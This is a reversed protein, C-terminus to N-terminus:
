ISGRLNELEEDIIKKVNELSDSNIVAGAAEEHGGGGLSKAIKSVDIKNLPNTRFSIYWQNVRTDQPMWIRNYEVDKSYKLEHIGPYVQENILDYKRFDKYNVYSFLYKHEQDYSVRSHSIGLLKIKNLAIASLASKVIQTDAGLIVLKKAIEYTHPHPGFSFWGTDSALGMFLVNAIEASIDVSQKEFLMFVIEATSAAEMDIYNYDGFYTNTKHHDINVVTMGEPLEFHENNSYRKISSIDQALFTDFDNLNVDAPDVQNVPFINKMLPLEPYEDASVITVNKGKSTLVVASAVASCYSDPDPSLHLPILISEAQMLADWIEDFTNNQHQLFSM